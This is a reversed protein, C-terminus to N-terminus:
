KNTAPGEEKCTAQYIFHDTATGSKLNGARDPSFIKGANSFLQESMASTKPIGLFFRALLAVTPYHISKQRWWPLPDTLDNSEPDVLFKLVPEKQYRKLETKCEEEISRSFREDDDSNSSDSCMSNLRNAYESIPNSAVKEKQRGTHAIRAQNKAPLKSDQEDDEGDNQQEKSKALIEERKMRVAVMLKLIHNWVEM